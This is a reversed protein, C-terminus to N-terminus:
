LGQLVQFIKPKEWMSQHWNVGNQIVQRLTKQKLLNFIAKILGNGIKRCVPIEILLQRIGLQIEHWTRGRPRQAMYQKAKRLLVKSEIQHCKNIGDPIGSIIIELVKRWEIAQIEWDTTLKTLILLGKEITEVREDQDNLKVFRPKPLAESGTLLEGDFLCDISMRFTNPM